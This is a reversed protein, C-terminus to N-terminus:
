GAALKAFRVLDDRSLEGSTRGAVNGQADIAVLFPYADLGYAGAASAEKDDLVVDGTWAERKLWAVPPYNPAQKNTGTAVAVLRLDGFAGSKAAAVIVPVEKQCHPCWHAVFAVLTPQGRGGILVTANDPTKGEIVPAPRGVAKDTGEDSRAPLAEGNVVIPGFAPAEAAATDGPNAPELTVGTPKDSNSCAATVAVVAALVALVRIRLNM